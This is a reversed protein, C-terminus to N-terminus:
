ARQNRETAFPSIVSRAYKCKVSCVTWIPCNADSTPRLTTGSRRARVSSPVPPPRPSYRRASSSRRSSPKRRCKADHGLTSRFDSSLLVNNAYAFLVCVASSRTRNNVVPPNRSRHVRSSRPPFNRRQVAVIAPRHLLTSSRYARVRVCVRSRFVPQGPM